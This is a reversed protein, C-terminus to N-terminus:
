LFFGFYIQFVFLKAPSTERYSKETELPIDEDPDLQTMDLVLRSGFNIINGSKLSLDLGTGMLLSVGFLQPDWGKLDVEEDWTHEELFNFNFQVGAEIYVLSSTPKVFATVPVSLRFFDVQEEHLPSRYAFGEEDYATVFHLESVKMMSIFGFNLEGAVGFYDNIQYRVGLGLDMGEGASNDYPEMEYRNGAGDDVLVSESHWMWAVDMSVRPGFFLSSGGSFAFGSFFLFLLFPLRSIKM